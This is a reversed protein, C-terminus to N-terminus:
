DTQGVQSCDEKTKVRVNSAAALLSLLLDALDLLDRQVSTHKILSSDNGIKSGILLVDLQEQDLQLKLSCDMVVDAM